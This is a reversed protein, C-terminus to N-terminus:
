TSKKASIEPLAGPPLVLRALLGGEPASDLELRGGYLQARDAVIALGLGQGPIAEDLREGRKVLLTRAEQPIGPGDDTVEIVLGDGEQGAALRITTAGYKAANEALAGLMEVLDEYDGRFIPAGDVTITAALGRRDLEPGLVLMVDEIVPAVPTSVLPDLGAGTARARKLHWRIMREMREILVADDLGARNALVSLPTKLAHALDAAHTRAREVQRRNAILLRDLEAALPELEVVDAPPMSTRGGARVDAVARTFRTLDVLGARVAVLQALLLAGGLMGLLALLPGTLADIERRVEASPVTVSVTLLRGDGPATYRETRLMLPEGEPGTSSFGDLGLNGTVLSPSRALVAAGDAVQWYWGSLPEEYRPYSPMPDVVFNETADWGSAAMLGRADALLQDSLRRSVFDSLLSSLVFWAIVTAIATLGLAWLVLRTRISRLRM